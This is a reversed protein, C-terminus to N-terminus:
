ESVNLIPLMLKIRRKLHSIYEDSFAHEDCLWLGDGISSAFISSAWVEGGEWFAKFVRLCYAYREMTDNNIPM